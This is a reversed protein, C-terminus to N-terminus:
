RLDEILGGELIFYAGGGKELLFTSLAGERGEM